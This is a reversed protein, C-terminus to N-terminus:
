FTGQFNLALYMLPIGIILCFVILIRSSFDSLNVKNILLLVTFLTIVFLMKYALYFDLVSGTYVLVLGYICFYEKIDLNKRYKFILFFILLLYAIVGIPYKRGYEVDSDLYDNYYPNINLLLFIDPLFKITFTLIIISSIFIPLFKKINNIKFFNFLVYLIVAPISGYHMLCPLSFWIMNKLNPKLRLGFVLYCFIIAAYGIRLQIIFVSSALIFIFILGAFFKAFNKVSYYNKTSDVNLSASNFSLFMLFIFFIQVITLNIAPYSSIKSLVLAIFNLLPEERGHFPFQMIRVYIARDRATIMSNIFTVLYLIFIPFLLILSSLQSKHIRM